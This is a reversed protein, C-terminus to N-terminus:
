CKLLWRSWSNVTEEYTGFSVRKTPPFGPDHIGLEEYWAGFDLETSSVTFVGLM